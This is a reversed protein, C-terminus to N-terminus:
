RGRAAVVGLEVCCSRACGRVPPPTPWTGPPGRHARLGPRGARRGRGRRATVHCCAGGPQHWPQRAARLLAHMRIRTLADLAASPARGAAATGAGPGAGPGAGRAAGRRRLPHDALGQGARGPRGDDLATQSSRARAPGPLGLCARQRAGAEVAPAPPGPLGGLVASPCWCGAASTRTSGPWAQRAVTHEQRLRQSGALGRVRRRRIDLDVGAWCGRPRRLVRHLGTARVALDGFAAPDGGLGTATRTHRHPHARLTHTTTM